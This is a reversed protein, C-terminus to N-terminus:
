DVFHRDGATLSTLAAREPGHRSDVIQQALGQCEELQDSSDAAAERCSTFEVWSFLVGIVLLGYGAALLRAKANLSM